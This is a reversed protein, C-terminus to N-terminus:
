LQTRVYFEDGVISHFSFGRRKLFLPIRYDQYNNEVGIVRVDLASWDIAKLIPLEAGEVDISLYDVSSIGAQELLQPLTYCMVDIETRTGGTRALDAAIRVQHRLDYQDALGSLMQAYGTVLQFKRLGPRNTVCGEIVTCTRNQRLREFVDPIPEVALGTWQFNRELVLTNSFKVGDNAGIDVFVLGRAQPFLTEIVWKDQGCQSVYGSSTLAETDISPRIADRALRDYLTKQPHRAARLLSLANM